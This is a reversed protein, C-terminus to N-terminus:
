YMCMCVCVYVYMCYMSICVICVCVYVYMCYLYFFYMCCMGICLSVYLYMCYMCYMCICACVCVFVSMYLTTAHMYAQIIRTDYLIVLTHAHIHIYTYTHTHIHIYTNRPMSVSFLPKKKFHQASEAGFRIGIVGQSKVLFVTSEKPVRVGAPVYTDTHGVSDSPSYMNNCIM